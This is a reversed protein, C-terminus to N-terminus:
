ALKKGMLAYRRFVRGNYRATREFSVNDVHMLAYIVNVFGLESATRHFRDALLHGVGRRTAAYTKLIVSSPRAGELRNPLGLLFGALGTQDHAFFVLRPDINPLLPQYLELLAPKTIPKFFPNGKFSELAVDTLGAILSLADKGDWPTISVGDMAAPPSPGIAENLSTKRSAYSSIPAFGSAEFAAKDHPGSVPEMLFPASGDSEAVLRYSHWTDGDMPGIAAEYGEHRLITGVAILLEAGDRPNDCRFSGIAATKMGKWTPADRYLRCAAGDIALREPAIM